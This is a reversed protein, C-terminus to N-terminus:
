AKKHQRRREGADPVRGSSTLSHQIYWRECTECEAHVQMGNAQMGSCECMKSAHRTTVDRKHSQCDSTKDERELMRMLKGRQSEEGHGGRGEHRTDPMRESRTLTRQRCCGESVKCKAQM